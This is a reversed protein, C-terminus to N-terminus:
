SIAFSTINRIFRCPATPMSRGAGNKSTLMPPCFNMAASRCSASSRRMWNPKCPPTPPIAWSITCKCPIRRTMSSLWPGDLDRVFTYRTTRVARYEKGGKRRDWEGLAGRLSARDSRRRSEGGGHLYKSYDLGEVTKPIAVGCLGLLTPMFDESNTPADFERAQEGFGQPWHFLLPIRAAEDYPKQKKMMGQSGLMDGHDATFVLLTHDDLGTEKLTARVEGLCDDLASCHAYYGAINKRTAEAMAEPVNARLTIKQPDYLARYKEPATLYPDHPPGWSLFLVFPKEAKAHDKLYQVADHTQDIADYGSWHLKDSTDGYFISDTYNHTCELVKWYDFGQRRERPIFSLRGHGDVHWKGIFGTDYGADHMVKGITVANPDLPM